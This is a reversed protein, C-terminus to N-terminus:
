KSIALVKELVAMWPESPYSLVTDLQVSSPLCKGLAQLLLPEKNVGVLWDSESIKGDKDEDLKKLAIEILERDMEDDEEQRNLLQMMEEKTIFKDGNLDYIYFSFSAQQNSDQSALVHMGKVFEEFTIKNDNNSDFFKFIRDLILTDVFGCHTMLLSKFPIKDLSYQHINVPSIPLKSPLYSKYVAYLSNVQELKFRDVFQSLQSSKEM